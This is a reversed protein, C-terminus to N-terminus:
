AAAARGRLGPNDFTMGERHDYSLLAMCRTRQGTVRSVRHLACHGHFLVLTGAEISVPRVRTRDGNLLRAVDDYHEDEPSRLNPAYEFVGGEDASELLLSVVFENSDFHWGHIGGPRILTVILNYTPDASRFLQRGVIASLFYTLPDWAYIREIGRGSLQQGYLFGVDFEQVMRRPSEAPTAEDPPNFVYPIRTFRRQEVQAEISRIDDRLVAVSDARLFGPLLYLARDALAHSGEALLRSYGPTDPRDLPYRELDILRSPATNPVNM